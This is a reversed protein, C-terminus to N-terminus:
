WFLDAATAAARALAFRAFLFGNINLLKFERRIRSACKRTMFRAFSVTHTNVLAEVGLDCRQM